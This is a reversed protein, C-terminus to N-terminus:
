GVVPSEADEKARKSELFHVAGQPKSLLDDEAFARASLTQQALAPRLRLRRADPRVAVPRGEHDLQRVDRRAVGFQNERDIWEYRRVMGLEFDLDRCLALLEASSDETVAPRDEPAAPSMAGHASDQRLRHSVLCTSRNELEAEM